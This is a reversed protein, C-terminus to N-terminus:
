DVEVIEFDVAGPHLQDAIQEAQNYDTAVVCFTNVASPMFATIEYRKM